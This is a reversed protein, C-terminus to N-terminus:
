NKQEGGKEEDDQEPPDPLSRILERVIETQTRATRESYARLKELEQESINFSVKKLKAM